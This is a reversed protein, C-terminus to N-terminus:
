DASIIALALLLPPVTILDNIAHSSPSLISSHMGTKTKM